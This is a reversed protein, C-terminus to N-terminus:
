SQLGTTYSCSSSGNRICNEQVVPVQLMNGILTKDFVCILEQGKVVSRFPCNHLRIHVTQDMIEVEPRFDLEALIDVLASLRAKHGGKDVSRTARNAMRRFLLNSLEKGDHGKTDEPTLESLESLVSSLLDRYRKPLIEQGEETLVYAYGPRGLSKRVQKYDVLRDRLLVDLHRRVTASALDLERSLYGVSSGERKQLLNLIKLRTGTAAVVMQKGHNLTSLLTISEWM